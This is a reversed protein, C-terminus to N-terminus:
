ESESNAPLGPKVFIVKEREMVVSGEKFGKKKKVFKRECYAVPVSSSKRAKSYYAAISAAGYIAEKPVEDKKNNLKLVTHSGSAGRVHFWLDNQASHRRTLLDNSASDKGVWVEYKDNLKFKRFRSTEDNKTESTKKEEKILTKYDEMNNIKELEENLTRTEKEMSSIKLKLIGVSAKQKKYKEFYNQANESPSLNEKLKIETQNGDPLEYSFSKDGKNIAHMNQLITNGHVKLNESDESYALQVMLSQVKKNVISIKKKLEDSKNQKISVIKEERTRKQLYESVLSNINDFEKTEFDKLQGLKILSFIFGKDKNYLIYEPNKLQEDMKSFAKNIEDYYAETMTEKGTLKMEFLIEKFILEGYIRFNQKLYREISVDPNKGAEPRVKIPIVDTISKGSYEDKDKFSNIIISNMILFCNAKNSFFTFVMEFEDQLKFNIARDDNYLSVSIIEKGNAHELLDAYNKKAKSFNDKLILYINDKEISYELMKADKKADNILSIFLKNKEQAFIEDIVYGTINQNLFKATERITFYNNLM